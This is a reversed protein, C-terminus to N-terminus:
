TIGSRVGNKKQKLRNKKENFNDVDCKVKSCLRSIDLARRNLELNIKLWREKLTRKDWEIDKSWSVILSKYQYILTDGKGVTLSVRCNSYRTGNIYLMDKLKQVANDYVDRYKHRKILSLENKDPCYTESGLLISIDFGELKTTYYSSSTEGDDFSKDVWDKPEVNNLKHVLNEFLKDSMEM